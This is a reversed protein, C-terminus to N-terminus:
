QKDGIMDIIENIKQAIRIHCITEATIACQVYPDDIGDGRTRVDQNLFEQWESEFEARVTEFNTDLKQIM